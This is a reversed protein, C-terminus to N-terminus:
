REGISGEGYADQMQGTADRGARIADDVARHAAERELIGAQYEEEPTEMLYAYLPQGSAQTGVLRRIRSDPSDSKIGQETVHKYALEEAEALRGPVDNFWRRRYGTREPASLKMNFGGTSARRRRKTPAEAAEPLSATFAASNEQATNDPSLAPAAKAVNPRRGRRKPINTM